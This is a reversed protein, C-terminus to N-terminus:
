SSYPSYPYYPPQNNYLFTRVITFHPNIASTLNVTYFNYPVILSKMLTYNWSYGTGNQYVPIIASVKRGSNDSSISLLFTEKPGNGTNVQGSLRIAYETPDNEPINMSINPRPVGNVTFYSINEMLRDRADAYVAYTHDPRFGHQSTNVEWSWTNIACSGATVRVTDSIGECCPTVYGHCNGENKMCSRFETTGVSIRIIEGMPLNTTGDITVIDGLYHHPVPNIRIFLEAPVLSGSANGKQVCEM